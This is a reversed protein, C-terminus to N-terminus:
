LRFSFLPVPNTLPLTRLACVTSQLPHPYPLAVLLVHYGLSTSVMLQVFDTGLQKLAPCLITIATTPLQALLMMVCSKPACALMGGHYWKPGIETSLARSDVTTDGAFFCCVGSPQRGEHKRSWPKIGVMYPSCSKSGLDLLGHLTISMDTSNQVLNLPVYFLTLLEEHSINLNLRSM